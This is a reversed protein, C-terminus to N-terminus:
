QKGQAIRIFYNELSENHPIVKLIQHGQGILQQLIPNIDVTPFFNITINGEQSLIEFQGTPLSNKYSEDKSIFSIETGKLTKALIDSIKGEEKIAGNRLLIIRNCITEVDNLVHSSMLITKGQAKLELITDRFDKRGIPDLGSMPEDLIIVQPDNILCQAFGLRQRMGKSYTQLKRDKAYLIGFRDLLENAKKKIASPKLGFLSAYFYLSEEATLHEYFYPGEPLYGLLSRSKPLHCPIDNIFVQGSTPKNLGTIIKFTTTKGAGNPGVYGTVEGAPIQFSVGNLANVTSNLGVKFTKYLENACISAMSLKAKVLNM